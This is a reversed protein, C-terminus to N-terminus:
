NCEAACQADICGFTGDYRKKGEPHNAACEALCREAEAGADGADAPLLACALACNVYDDDCRPDGLCDNM